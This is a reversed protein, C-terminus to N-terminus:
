RLHKTDRMPAQMSIWIHQVQHVLLRGLREDIVQADRLAQVYGNCFQYHQEGASYTPSDRFEMLAAVWSAHVPDPLEAPLSMRDFPSPTPDAQAM